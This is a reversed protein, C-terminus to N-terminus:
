YIMEPQFTIGKQKYFYRQENILMNNYDLWPHCSNLGFSYFLLHNHKGNDNDKSIDTNKKLDSKEHRWIELKSRDKHQPMLKLYNQLENYWNNNLSNMSIFENEDLLIEQFFCSFRRIFIFM